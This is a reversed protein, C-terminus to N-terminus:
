RTTSSAGITALGEEDAAGEPAYPNHAAPPMLLAPREEDDPEDDNQRAKAREKKSAELKAVTTQMVQMAIQPGGEDDFEESFRRELDDSLGDSVSFQDDDDEDPNEPDFDDDDDDSDQVLSCGMIILIFRQGGILQLQNGWQLKLSGSRM